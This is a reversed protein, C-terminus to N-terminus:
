CQEAEMRFGRLYNSKIYFFNTASQVVKADPNITQIKTMLKININKQQLCLFSHTLSVSLM